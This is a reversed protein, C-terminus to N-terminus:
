GKNKKMFKAGDKGETKARSPKKAGPKGDKMKGSPSKGVNMKGKAM